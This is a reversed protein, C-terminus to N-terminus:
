FVFRLMLGTAHQDFTDNEYDAPDEGMNSFNRLYQYYAQLSFLDTFRYELLAKLRLAHDMRTKEHEVNSLPLEPTGRWRDAGLYCTFGYRVS